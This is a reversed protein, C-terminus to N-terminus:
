LLDNTLNKVVRAPNGAAVSFPPIDKTVVAHAGIISGKGITVGKMVVVGFGIWVNDEIVVPASAANTWSNLSNEFRSESLKKRQMPSTPHNNNDYIYIDHSFIVCKGIEIRQVAGLYTNYRITTYDGIEITGNGQTELIGHISVNKGIHINEKPGKNFCSATSGIELGPEIVCQRLFQRKKYRAKLSVFLSRIISIM